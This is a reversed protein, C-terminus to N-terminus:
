APGTITGNKAFVGGSGANTTEWDGEPNWDIPQAGWETWGSEDIEQLGNTPHYFDTPNTLYTESYGGYGIEGDVFDGTGADNAGIITVGSTTPLTGTTAAVRSTYTADDADLGDLYFTSAGIDGDFAFSFLKDSGVVDVDTMLNCIQVGASDQVNIVLRNRRETTAHDNSYVIVVLRIKGTADRIDALRVTGGGSFSAINFRRVFTQKNGSNTRTISYYGTSGDFTMMGPDYPGAFEATAPLGFGTFRNNPYILIQDFDAVPAGFDEIQEAETYTLTENITKFTFSFPSEIFQVNFDLFHQSVVADNPAGIRKNHDWAILWDAGSLEKIANLPTWEIQSYGVFTFTTEDSASPVNGISYCRFTLSENLFTSSLEIREPAVLKVFRDGTTHASANTNMQARNLHSLDWDSGNAVVDRFNIIEDGVLAANGGLDFEAQTITAVDDDSLTVTITNTTDLGRPHSALNAALVGMTEPFTVRGRELWETDILQEVIAGNWPGSDSGYASVYIHLTDHSQLLAPLDMIEFTTNSILNSPPEIPGIPTPATVDSGYASIRDVVGDMQLMGDVSSIKQIRVRRYVGTSTEVMVPDSPVLRAFVESVGFKVRGEVEAWAVKHLKDAIQAADDAELNITVEITIESLSKIDASRRESTEKTPTYDTEASAYALHLKQPFEVGQERATEFEAESGLVMDNRDITAVSAGGRLVATLIGNIEVLDFFYARQLSRLTDAVNYGGAAMFGRVKFPDIALTNVSAIGALGCLNHVIDGASPLDDESLPYTIAM